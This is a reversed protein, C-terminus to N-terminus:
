NSIIPSKHARFSRNNLKNIRREIKPYAVHILKITDHLASQDSKSSCGPSSIDGNQLLYFSVIKFAELLATLEKHGEFIVTDDVLKMHNRARLQETTLMINIQLGTKTYSKSIALIDRKCTVFLLCNTPFYTVKM